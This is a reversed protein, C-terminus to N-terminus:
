HRTPVRIEQVNFPSKFLVNFNLNSELMEKEVERSNAHAEVTQYKGKGFKSNSHIPWPHNRGHWQSIFKSHKPLSHTENLKRLIKFERANHSAFAIANRDYRVAM